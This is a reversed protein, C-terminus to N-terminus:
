STVKLYTYVPPANYDIKPIGKSGPFTYEKTICRLCGYYQVYGRTNKRPDSEDKFLFPFPKLDETEELCRDCIAM